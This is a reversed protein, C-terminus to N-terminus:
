KVEELAETEEDIFYLLFGQKGSESPSDHPLLHYLKTHFFRIFLVEQKYPPSQSM